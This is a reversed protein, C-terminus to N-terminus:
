TWDLWGDSPLPDPVISPPCEGSSSPQGSEAPCTAERALLILPSIPNVPEWLGDRAVYALWGDVGSLERWARDARRGGAQAIKGERYLAKPGERQDAGLKGYSQATGINSCYAIEDLRRRIAEREHTTLRFKFSMM